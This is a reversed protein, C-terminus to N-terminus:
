SAFGIFYEIPAIQKVPVTAKLLDILHKEHVIEMTAMATLIGSQMYMLVLTLVLFFKIAPGIIKVLPFSNPPPHSSLFQQACFMHSQGDELRVPHGPSRILHCSCSPWFVPSSETFLVADLM